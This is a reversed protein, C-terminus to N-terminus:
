FSVGGTGANGGSKPTSGSSTGTVKPANWTGGMSAMGVGNAVHAKTDGTFLFLPFGNDTVQTGDSTVGLGKVGKGATPKTGAKITLPVFGADLCTGTCAVNQHNNTLTYLTHKKSNVLVSGIGKVTGVSVTPKQAASASPVGLLGFALVGACVFAGLRASRVLTPGSNRVVSVPHM